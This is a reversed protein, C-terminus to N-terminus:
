ALGAEARLGRSGGGLGGLTRSSLFEFGGAPTTQKLGESRRWTGQEQSKSTRVGPGWRPLQSSPLEASSDGDKNEARASDLRSRLHNPPRGPLRKSAEEFAAANHVTM